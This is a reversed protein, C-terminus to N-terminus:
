KLHDGLDCRAQRLLGLGEEGGLVGAGGGRGGERIVGSMVVVVPLVRLGALDEEASDFGM